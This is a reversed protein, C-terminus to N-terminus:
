RTPRGTSSSLALKTPGVPEDSGMNLLEGLQAIKWTSLNVLGRVASRLRQEPTRRRPKGEIDFIGAMIMNLTIAQMRPALAM